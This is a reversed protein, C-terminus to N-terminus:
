QYWTRAGPGRALLVVVRHVGFGSRRFCSTRLLDDHRVARVDCYPEARVRVQPRTPALPWSSGRCICRPYPTASAFPCRIHAAISSRAGGFQKRRSHGLNLPVSCLSLSEQGSRCRREAVLCWIDLEGCNGCMFYVQELVCSVEGVFSGFLRACAGAFRCALTLMLLWQPRWDM